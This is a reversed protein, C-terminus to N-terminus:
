EVWITAYSQSDASGVPIQVNGRTVSVRGDSQTVSTVVAGTGTTTANLEGIATSITEATAKQALADDLGAIKSTSIAADDAISDNSIAGNAIESAGVTDMRALKKLGLNIQVASAANAAITEALAVSPYVNDNNAGGAVYGSVGDKVMNDVDQKDNLADDAQDKTYADAIGYGALTTARDAKQAVAGAVYSTDAIDAYSASIGLVSIISVVFINKIKKM